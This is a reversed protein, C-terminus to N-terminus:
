EEWEAVIEMYTYSYAGFYGLAGGKINSTPNALADEINSMTEYFTFTGKDLCRMEIGLVDKQKIPDDDDDDEDEYRVFIPQHIENGDMFETSILRERLKPYEGNISIVFRYYQNEEGEPDKFHVMPDYFDAFPFKWLSLSDLEVHPPMTTTATYEVGEYKVSLNYTRREVGKITAARYKGSEHYALQERHGENDEITVVADKIVPYVNPDSFNISKTIRVEAAEGMRVNGEIVLIPEVDRLEVDIIDECSTFVSVALLALLYVINKNM